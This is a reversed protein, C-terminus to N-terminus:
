KSQHPSKQLGVFCNNVSSQDISIIEGMNVCRNSRKDLAFHVECSKQQLCIVKVCLVVNSTIVEFRTISNTSIEDSSVHSKAATM